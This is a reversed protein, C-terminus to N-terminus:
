NINVGNIKVCAVITSGVYDQMSDNEFSYVDQAVMTGNKFNASSGLSFNSTFIPNGEGCCGPTSNEYFYVTGGVSSYPKMDEKTAAVKVKARSYYSNNTNDVPVFSFGGGWCADEGFGCNTGCPDQRGNIALLSMKTNVSSRSYGKATSITVPVSVNDTGNTATLSNASFCEPQEPNPNQWVYNESTSCTTRTCSGESPNCSPFGGCSNDSTANSFREGEICGNENTNTTCNEECVFYNCPAVECSSFDCEVLKCNIDTTNNYNSDSNSCPNPAGYWFSSNMKASASANLKSMASATEIYRGYGDVSGRIIYTYSSSGGNNYSSNFLALAFTGGGIDYFCNLNESSNSNGGRTSNYNRYGLTGEPLPDGNLCGFVGPVVNASTGISFLSVGPACNECNQNCSGM